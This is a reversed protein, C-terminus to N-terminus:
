SSPLAALAAGLREDSLPLKRGAGRTRRSRILALALQNALLEDYALRERPKADPELDARGRPKHSAALAARWDAWGREAKLPADLWEPLDKAQEIAADVAKRLTKPALGATMPYVPEHMPLADEGGVVTIYDPHAMQARGQFREVVGSIIRKEGLPLQKAIWDPRARFFM